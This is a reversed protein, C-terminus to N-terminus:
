RFLNEKKGYEANKMECFYENIRKCRNCMFNREAFEECLMSRFLGDQDIKGNKFLHIIKKDTASIVTGQCRKMADFDKIILGLEQTTSFNCKIAKPLSSGM